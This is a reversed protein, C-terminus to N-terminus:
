REGFGFGVRLDSSIIRHDRVLENFEARENPPLQTDSYDVVIDEWECLHEGSPEEIFAGLAFVMRELLGQVVTMPRKFVTSDHTGNIVAGQMLKELVADYVLRNAHLAEEYIAYQPDWSSVSQIHSRLLAYAISSRSFTDQDFILSELVRQSAWQLHEPTYDSTPQFNVAHIRRCRRAFSMAANADVYNVHQAATTLTTVPANMRSLASKHDAGYCWVVESSTSRTSYESDCHPCCSLNDIMGGILILGMEMRIGPRIQAKWNTGSILALTEAEFLEYCKTLVFDSAGITRSYLLNVFEHFTEYSSCFQTPVTIEEGLLGILFVCNGHSSGPYTPISSQLWLVQVVLACVASWLSATKWQPGVNSYVVYAAGAVLFPALLSLLRERQDRPTHPSLSDFIMNAVRQVRSVLRRTPSSAFYPRSLTQEIVYSRSPMTTERLALLTVSKIDEAYKLFVHSQGQALLLDYRLAALISSHQEDLLHSTSQHGLLPIFSNLRKHNEGFRKAYKAADSARLLQWQIKKLVRRTNRRHTSCASSDELNEFGVIINYAHNIDICCLQVEELVAQRLTENYSAKALDYVEGM